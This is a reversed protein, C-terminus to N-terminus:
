YDYKIFAAQLVNKMFKLDILPLPFHLRSNYGILVILAILPKAIASKMARVPAIITLPAFVM